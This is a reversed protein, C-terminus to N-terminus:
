CHLFTFHGHCSLDSLGTLVLNNLSVAPPNTRHVPIGATDTVGTIDYDVVEIVPSKYATTAVNVVRAAKKRPVHSEVATSPKDATTSVNIVHPVPSEIATAPSVDSSALKVM